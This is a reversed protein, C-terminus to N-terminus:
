ERKGPKAAPKKKSPAPKPPKIEKLGGMFKHLVKPLKVSGDAQQFNELIAVAARTTAV